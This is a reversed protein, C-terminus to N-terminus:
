RCYGIKRGCLDSSPVKLRGRGVTRRTVTRCGVTRRTVAVNCRRTISLWLVHGREDSDERDLSYPTEKFGSPVLALFCWYEYDLRYPMPGTTDVDCGPSQGIHGFIESSGCWPNSIFPWGALWCDFLIMVSRGDWCWPGSASRSLSPVIRGSDCFKSWSRSWNTWLNSKVEQWLRAELLPFMIPWGIIGCLKLIWWGECAIKSPEMVRYSVSVCCELRPGPSKTNM